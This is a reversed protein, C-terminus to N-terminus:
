PLVSIRPVSQWTRLSGTPRCLRGIGCMRSWLSGRWVSEAGAHSSSATRIVGDFGAAAIPEVHRRGVILFSSCGTAPNAALSLSLGDATRRSEGALLSSYKCGQWDSSDSAFWCAGRHGGCFKTDMPDKRSLWVHLREDNNGYGNGDGEGGRDRAAALRWVILPVARNEAAEAARAEARRDAVFALVGQRAREDTAGDASDRAIGHAFPDILIPGGSLLLGISLADACLGGAARDSRLVHDGHAARAETFVHDGGVDAGVADRLLQLHVIENIEAILAHGIGNQLGHLLGGGGLCAVVRGVGGRNRRRWHDAGNDDLVDVRGITRRGKIPMTVMMVVMAMVMVPVVMVTGGAVDVPADGDAPLRVGRAMTTAESRSRGVPGQVAAIARGEFVYRLTDTLSFGRVSRDGGRKGEHIVPFGADHGVIAGWQKGHARSVRDLSSASRTLPYSGAVRGFGSRIAELDWRHVASIYCAIV